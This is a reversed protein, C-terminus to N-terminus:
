KKPKAPPPPPPIPPSLEIPKIIREKTPIKKALKVWNDPHEMALLYIISDQTYGKDELDKIAHLYRIIRSQYDEDSFIEKGMKNIYELSFGKDALTQVTTSQLKLKQYQAFAPNHYYDYVGKHEEDAPKTLKDFIDVINDADMPLAEESYYALIEDKLRFSLRQRQTVFYNRLTRRLKKRIPWNTENAALEIDQETISRFTEDFFLTNLAHRTEHTQTDISYRAARPSDYKHSNEATIVNRLAKTKLYDISCGGSKEAQNIDADTLPEKQFKQHYIRAYDNVDFCRFYLTVPGEIIEIKGTPMQNFLELFLGIDDPHDQRLQKIATHRETYNQTINKFFNIQRPNLKFQPAIVSLSDIVDIDPKYQWIEMLKSQIAAIGAKQEITQEKLEALEAQLPAREAQRKEAREQIIKEREEKSLKKEEATLPVLHIDRLQKLVKKIETEPTFPEYSDYPFNGWEQFENHIKGSKETLETLRAKEEPALDSERQMLAILEDM